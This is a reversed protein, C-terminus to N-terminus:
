KVRFSEATKLGSFDTIKIQEARAAAVQKEVANDSFAAKPNKNLSLDGAQWNAYAMALVDEGKALIEEDAVISEFQFFHCCFPNHQWKGEVEVYHEAYGYDAPELYLDYRVECLGKREGCGTPNIKFFM